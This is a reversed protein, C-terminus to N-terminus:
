SDKYLKLGYANVGKRKLYPNDNTADKAEEWTSLCWERCETQMRAREAERQQKMAEMKVTYAAKEARTMSRYAKASWKHWIGEGKWTGFWGAPVGDLHLGYRGNESRPKDGPVHFNHRSGDAILEAPLEIGKSRAYQRFQEITNNM